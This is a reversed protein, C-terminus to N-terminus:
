ARPAYSASPNHPSTGVGRHRLFRRFLASVGLLALATLLVRTGHAADPRGLAAGLTAGFVSLAVVLPAMGLITGLLFPGLPVRVSGVLANVVSFPAFPFVRALAVAFAGRHRIREALWARRTGAFRGVRRRGLLRGIGYLATASALVGALAYAAGWWPGFAWGSQVVLLSVPFGVLGGGVFVALVAAPGWLGERLPGLARGLEAPDLLARLPSLGWLAGLAVIGAILASADRLRDRARVRHEWPLLRDLVEGDLPGDPDVLSANAIVEAPVEEADVELDGLTRAGHNHRAVVAHLSGLAEFSAALAEPDARLHEGLLRWRMRAIAASVRPDHAEIVLDCETDLGMSRNSLNASGVRLLRDDVVTVKAHVNLQYDERGPMAPCCVRLRGHRDAARIRQVAETRLANMTRQELWGHAICPVVMLVEAGAPEALKEALVDRALHSTLYQNEVYLTRTAARLCDETLARVEGVAPRGAFPPETRAIGVDVDTFDPRVGDPWPDESPRPPAEIRRGTARRWRERVLEGLSAATEGDVLMQVDHFPGYPDGSLDTRRPDDPAHECTDWRCACLDLGGSFAVADDIVVIKQHHSAALPHHDDLAFHVGRGSHLRFGLGPFLERELAFVISSDWGLLHVHLGKRRRTLRGLFPALQMPAGDGPRLTVRSSLDWGVVLISREARACARAFAEYYAEADVIVAARTSRGRRWLNHGVRTIPEASM